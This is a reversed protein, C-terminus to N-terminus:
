TFLSANDAAWTAFSRAPKGLLQEVVTAHVTAPQDVMSAYMSLLADVVFPPLTRSMAERAEGPTQEEFRVPRGIVTGIQEALEAQTCLDPGTLAYVQGGHGSCTLAEAAVEAIDLEHIPATRARGYPARVVGEARISPAWQRANAAFQGPRLFTWRLDSRELAEEVITHRRTLMSSDGRQAAASSLLVIHEVGAGFARDIFGEIGEPNSYLFVRKVGAVAEDLTGPEALDAHVVPVGEPLGRGDHDRDSSAARVAAGRRALEAVVARGITGRAGTVLITM